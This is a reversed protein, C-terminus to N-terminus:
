SMDIMVNRICRMRGHCSCKNHTIKEDCRTKKTEWAIGRTLTEEKAFDEWM